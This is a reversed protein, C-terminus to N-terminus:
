QFGGILANHSFQRFNDLWLNRIELHDAELGTL